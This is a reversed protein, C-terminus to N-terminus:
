FILFMAIFINFFTYLIFKLINRDTCLRHNLSFYLFINIIIGKTFSNRKSKVLLIFFHRLTISKFLTANINRIQNYKDKIFIFEFM